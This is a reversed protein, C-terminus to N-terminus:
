KSLHPDDAGCLKTHDDRMMQMTKAEGFDRLMAELKKPFWRARAPLLDNLRGLEAPIAVASITEGGNAPMAPQVNVTKGPMKKFKAIARAIASAPLLASIANRQAKSLALQDVHQTEKIQGDRTRYTKAQRYTGLRSSATRVDKAEITYKIYKDTESENIITCQIGGYLRAAEKAGPWSLGTIKKGEIEFQYVYVDALEGSLEQLILQDDARDFEAFAQGQDLVPALSTSTAEGNSGGKKRSATKSTM